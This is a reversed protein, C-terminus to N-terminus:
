IDGWGQRQVFTASQQSLLAQQQHDFSLAILEQIELLLSIYSPVNIILSSIVIFISYIIVQIYRLPFV